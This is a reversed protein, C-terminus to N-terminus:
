NAAFTQLTREAQDRYKKEGTRKALEVLNRAAVSNGCPQAGDFQDKSRAFLKEHDKATYFFGGNKEDAFLKLMTDTLDHAEALWHKDRNAEHLTLLRHVLFAYDDLYANLRAGGSDEKKPMYSRLLRGDKTKMTKLIFDAAKAAVATYKPEKFTEG